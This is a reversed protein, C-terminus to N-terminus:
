TAHKENAKEIGRLVAENLSIKSKPREGVKVEAGRESALRTGADNRNKNVKENDVEKISGKAKLTVGKNSAALRLLSDLYQAHNLSGKPDFRFDNMLTKVEASLDLSNEYKNFVTEVTSNVQATLERVERDNASERIDKTKEAIMDNLINDLVPGLKEALFDYEGLGDRLRETVSKVVKEVQAETKIKDLKFGASKVLLALTEEMTDPDKLGRLLSKAFRIEEETDAEEEKKEVKVEPKSEKKEVKEEKKEEKPELKEKAQEMAFKIKDTLSVKVEPKVEPKIDVPTVEPKSDVPTVEDAM